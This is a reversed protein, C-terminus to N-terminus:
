FLPLLWQTFYTVIRTSRFETVNKHIRPYEPTYQFKSIVSGYESRINTFPHVTKTTYLYPGICTNYISIRVNREGRIGIWVPIYETYKYVQKRNVRNIYVPDFSFQVSLYLSETRKTYIYLGSKSNYVRIRIDHKWILSGWQRWHIARLKGYGVSRELRGGM